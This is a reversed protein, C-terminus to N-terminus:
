QKSGAKVVAKGDERVVISIPLPWCDNVSAEVKLTVKKIDAPILKPNFHFGQISIKGGDGGIFFQELPVGFGAMWPTRKTARVEKGHEDVLRANLLRFRNDPKETNPDLSEMTLTVNTEGASTM